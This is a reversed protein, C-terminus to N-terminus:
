VRVGPVKDAKLQAIVKDKMVRHGLLKPHFPRLMWGQLTPQGPVSVTINGYQDLMDNAEQPLLMSKGGGPMDIVRGAIAQGSKDVFQLNWFLVNNNYYQDEFTSGPECFRGGQFGETISVFQVHMDKGQPRYNNIVNRYVALLGEMLDNIEARLEKVLFPVTSYYNAIRQFTWTNCDTTDANFFHAYGTVYLHFHPLKREENAWKFIDDLTARFAAELSGDGTDRIYNRTAKLAKKCLGEGNPDLHYPKGYDTLPYPQFLCNAAVDFFGVNNGGVTMVAFDPRNLKNIQSQGLYMDVLRAGSCGAFTFKTEGLGQQVWSRDVDMQAAYADKFRLCSDKNGDLETDKSYAVGSDWSDGITGWELGLSLPCLIFLAFYLKM